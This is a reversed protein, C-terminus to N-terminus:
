AKDVRVTRGLAFSYLLCERVTVDLAESLSRRYINLQSTYRELLERETKVRDTKYDVIVLEGEEYFICDAIGQMVMYEGDENELAPDLECAPRLATFPFERLCQPSRSMREYLSSSFFASLSATDIVQAQESTLLGRSVLRAIEAETNDKAAAYDAFLMFQHIATGREAPSLGHESLFAPRTEAVFRRELAGETTQSAALKVPIRSLATHPYIYAMKERIAAVVDRDAVAPIPPEKEEIECLLAPQTVTFRWPTENTLLPLDERGAMQRWETACPHRLLAALLWEGMSKADRVTFSPLPPENGLSAALSSLRDHPRKLAMSLCLKERARTM